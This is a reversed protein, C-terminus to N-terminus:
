KLSPLYLSFAADPAMLKSWELGFRVPSDFLASAQAPTLLPVPRSKRVVAKVGEDIDLSSNGRGGGANAGYAAGASAIALDMRISNTYPGLFHETMPKAPDRTATDSMMQYGKQGLFAAAASAKPSTGTRALEWALYATLWFHYPKGSDCSTHVSPPYSYPHGSDMSLADLHGMLTSIVSLSIKKPMNPPRTNMAFVRSALNAGGTALLGMTKWTMEEAAHDSAGAEMFSSKVDGFLNAGGANKAKSRNLIKLAALRLGEDYKKDSLIERYLHIESINDEAPMSMKMVKDLAAPCEFGFVLENCAAAKVLSMHHIQSIKKEADGEPPAGFNLHAFRGADSASDFPKKLYKEAAAYSNLSLQELYGNKLFADRRIDSDPHYSRRWSEGRSSDKIEDDSKFDGFSKFDGQAQNRTTARCFSAVNSIALEKTIYLGQEAFDAVDSVYREPTCDPEAPRAPPASLLWALFLLM